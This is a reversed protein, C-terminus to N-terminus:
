FQWGLLNWYALLPIVAIAALTILSYHSREQWTWYNKSWVILILVVLILSLLTTILPLSFLGVVVPPVGYVLKWGGLLWLYLPLGVLFILNLIAIAEALIRTLNLKPIYRSKNGSILRVAQILGTGAAVIFWLSCFALLVLHLKINEYWPVRQFTGIKPYLPNSLHTIKGSEDAVFFVYADDNQRRFLRPESTPILKTNTTKGFFFLPPTLVLLTGDDQSTVQIQKAVGTIKAITSRPYEMDRYTGTYKQLEQSSLSVLYPAQSNSQKPFYRAFFRDIFKDHIGSFCNSAIFIGVNEEPILTLSSSYGRLSGLHGITRKNNIM